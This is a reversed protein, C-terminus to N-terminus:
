FLHPEVGKRILVLHGVAWSSSNKLVTADLLLALLSSMVPARDWEVFAEQLRQLHRIVPKNYNRASYQSVISTLPMVLLSGATTLFRSLPEFVHESLMLIVLASSILAPHFCNGCYDRVLKEPLAEADQPSIRTWVGHLGSLAAM